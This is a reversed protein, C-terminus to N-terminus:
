KKRRFIAQIISFLVVLAMICLISLCLVKFATVLMIVVGDLM